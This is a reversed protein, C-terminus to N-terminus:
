GMNLVFCDCTEKQFAEQVTVEPFDQRLIDGVYKYTKNDEILNRILTVNSEM